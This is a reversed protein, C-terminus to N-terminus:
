AHRGGSIDVRKSMALVHLAVKMEEIKPKSLGDDPNLM